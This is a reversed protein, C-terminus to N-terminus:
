KRKRWWNIGFYLAVVVLMMILMFSIVIDDFVLHSVIAIIFWIGSAICVKKKTEAKWDKQFFYTFIIGAPPLFVLLAISLLLTKIKRKSAEVEMDRTKGCIVCRETNGGISVPYFSHGSNQMQGCIKCTCGLWDHEGDDKKKGCRACICGRWSHLFPLCTGDPTVRSKALLAQNKKYEQDGFAM